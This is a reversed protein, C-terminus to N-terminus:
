GHQAGCSLASARPAAALGGRRTWACDIFYPLKRSAPWMLWRKSMSLGPSTPGAACLPRLGRALGKRVLDAGTM